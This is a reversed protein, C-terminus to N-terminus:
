ADTTAIAAAVQRAVGRAAKSWDIVRDDFQMSVALQHGFNQPYIFAGMVINMALFFQEDSRRAITRRIQTMLAERVGGILEAVMIKMERAPDILARCYVSRGTGTLSANEIFAPEYFAFLVDEITPETLADM